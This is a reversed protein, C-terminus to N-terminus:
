TPNTRIACGSPNTRNRPSAFEGAGGRGARFDVSSPFEVGNGGFHGGRDSGNEHGGRSTHRSRAPTKREPEPM